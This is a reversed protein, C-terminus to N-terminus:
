QLLGPVPALPRDLGLPERVRAQVSPGQRKLCKIRWGPGSPNKRRLTCRRGEIHLGGCDCPGVGM